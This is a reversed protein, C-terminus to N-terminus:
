TDGAKTVAIALAADPAPGGEEVLPFAGEVNGGGGRERQFIRRRKHLSVSRTILLDAFM